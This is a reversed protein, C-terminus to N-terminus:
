PDDGPGAGSVPGQPYPENMSQLPRVLNLDIGGVAGEELDLGAEIAEVDIILVGNHPIPSPWGGRYSRCTCSGLSGRHYARPGIALSISSSQWGCRSCSRCSSGGFQDRIEIQCM